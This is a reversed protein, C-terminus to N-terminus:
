IVHSIGGAEKNVNGKEQIRERLPKIDAQLGGFLPRECM